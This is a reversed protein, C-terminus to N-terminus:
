NIVLIKTAHKKDGEQSGCFVIYVGTSVKNGSFDKGDWIAQGGLSRTKYVINGNIDTIRVDTDTVMGKIAITGSFNERVPNPYAYVNEFDENAKTATSKYSIIGQDTGFYVEGTEQNIAISYVTNSFLPSNEKTFHFVEFTGDASMLFVGSNQTAIWKRNAGDVKIDNIAETELLIQTNGDQEVYIQQADIPGNFVEAPSYFVAIGENTGVWIEGGNDEAISLVKSGPLSGSGSASTLLKSRDDNFDTPTGNDDYVIIQGDSVSLIWKYNNADVLIDMLNSNVNAKGQLAITKISGGNPNLVSLAKETGASSIWLYGNNDFALGGVKSTYYSTGWLDSNFNNYVKKIKGNKVEILGEDWSGFYVQNTNTPNIAVAVFDYLTDTGTQFDGNISSWEYDIRSYVGTRNVLNNLNEKVMGSAVWLQEDVIDMDYVGTYYPGNPTIYEVNWNNTLKVLGKKRDAVWYVGENDITVANTNPVFDENYTFIREVENFSTNYIKAHFEQTLVLKNKYVKLNRVELGDPLFKQWTGGNLYYLTDTEYPQGGNLNVFLTNAYNVMFNYDNVPLTPLISWENYDSLNASNKDAFYVGQVTAAYIYQNDIAIDNVHVYAGNNGILYTDVIELKETDLLVIGFGCSLYAINGVMLVSYIKKDGVVNSNKIFALNTIHNDEDIVDINGNNYAVVLSNNNPNFKITSVGIDSLGNISNLRTITSEEKDYYFVASETACYIKNSAVTVDKGNRHPLHDQWTGIPIEQAQTAFSFALLITLFFRYLM